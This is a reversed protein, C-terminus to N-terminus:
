TRFIAGLRKGMLASALALTGGLLAMGYVGMASAINAADTNGSTAQAYMAKTIPYSATTQALILSDSVELVAFAFTLVGAAIVNAAILPLTIKRSATLPGAGLNRAAEVLSEPVQQLGASIGRVAFPLRRVAYAIILLLAVAGRTPSMSRLWDDLSDLANRPWAVVWSDSDGFWRSWGDPGALGAATMAIYGAAIIIGPVALPLMVLADLLTRGRVRARVILWAALGGLILDIVTSTGAYALSNKVAGLTDPRTVVFIMHQWTYESPLVTNVWRASFATLMVGAHPLLAAVLVTGFVLWAGITAAPGLPRLEAAVSAKSSAAPVARGFLFKGLVYFTLSSSLLVFVLSLISPSVDSVSLGRFIAVPLLPDYGVILPTGIDTFSWIFVITGGAFLGPRILPLTVRRFTQWPSAGLNRAAQQYAPDVNALAASANLYLIPFLHLAQLVVVGAFGSGLWDPPLASAFDLVGVRELLLNFAGFQSFMHRIALAGVFPPLIMPVLLLMGLLGQGVFRYRARLIAPPLAILISLVTTCCALVLGNLLQGLFPGSTLARHLYQFTFGGAEERFGGQIAMVIPALLFLGLFLWLVLMGSSRGLFPALRSM